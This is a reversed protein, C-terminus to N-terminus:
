RSSEDREKRVRRGERKEDARPPAARRRTWCVFCFAKGTARARAKFGDVTMEKRQRGEPSLKWREFERQWAEPTMPPLSGQVKWDTMSLGSRTLRTIGGVTVMGAVMGGCGLLWYGVVNDIVPPAVAGVTAARRLAPVRPVVRPLARKTLCALMSM